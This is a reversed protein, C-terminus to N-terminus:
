LAEAIKGYAAKPDEANAIFGGSILIDAGAAAVEAANEPNIGGDVSIEASPNIAKVEGIKALCDKRLEGGYHGLNGTFVLVHDALKIIADAEDVSTEPLIALGKKIGVQAIKEFFYSLNGEAEFHVIALKPSLSIVTETQKDPHSIMLHLDADLGAPLHVQALGITRTPAFPPQSIDIHIRGAFKLLKLKHGFDAPDNTLIAPVVRPM